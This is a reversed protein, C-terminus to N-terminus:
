YLFLELVFCVFLCFVPTFFIFMFFYVYLLPGWVGLVGMLVGMV